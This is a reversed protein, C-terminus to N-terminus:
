SIDKLIQKRTRHIYNSVVGMPINMKQSIEKYSSGEARLTIIEKYKGKLSRVAKEICDVQEMSVLQKEPDVSEAITHDLEVFYPKRGNVRVYDIAHNKGIKFLWTSFKYRPVFKKIDKFSKEFAEMTLDEAVIINNVIQYIMYFLPQKYKRVIEKFAKEDGNQAREVLELETM